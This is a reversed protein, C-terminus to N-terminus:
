TSAKGLVMAVGPWLAALGQEVEAESLRNGEDDEVVILVAAARVGATAATALFAATQLDRVRAPEGSANPEKTRRAPDLRAILDHSSVPAPAVSEGLAAELGATLGPDPRVRPEADPDSEGALARGAGDLAIAETILIIRGPEPGGPKSECTGMRLAMEVGADALDSLVAAVAPGGAGTSQVTLGRGDPTEGVYGWLGRALHSMRPEETFAQALAFARRPDGVLIAEPTPEILPEIRLPM